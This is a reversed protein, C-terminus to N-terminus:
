VVGLSYGGVLLGVWDWCGVWCDMGSAGAGMGRDRGFDTLIGQM